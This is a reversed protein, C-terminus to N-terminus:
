LNTKIYEIMDSKLLKREYHNIMHKIIVENKKMEDPALLIVIKAGKSSAIGYQEPLKKNKYSFECSIGENWLKCAISIKDNDFNGMSCIYVDLSLNVKNQEMLSFIREIGLSMGIASIQKRSFMGILNDYRGGGAISGIKSKSVSTIAVAEFIIGTYYDLGRALSTSIEYKIIHVSNLYNILTLLDESVEKPFTKILELSNENLLTFLKEISQISLGKGVLELKVTEQDLKDLKDISSCVTKFLESPINCINTIIHNLVKRSGIKIIYDFNCLKSLENLLENLVIVVEVDALISDIGAIDFDCQYFERFRGREIAPADRRYVKGIQFRKIKTIGHTAVFRAFPVTLDYRLSLIEGGQDELNYILKSDEGYKEMLINRLEFVPTDIEQAGHLTFIKRIIQLIKQRNVLQEPMMDHTGKPVKPTVISKNSNM